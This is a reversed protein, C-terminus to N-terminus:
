LTTSRGPIHCGTLRQCFTIPRDSPVGPGEVPIPKFHVRMAEGREWAERPTVSEEDVIHYFNWLGYDGHVLQEGLFDKYEAFTGQDPLWLLTHMAKEVRDAEETYPHPDEGIMLAIRAAMRNAYVNYASAYACGGGNYYLDDSAWITAYAEYLPLKEPGYERRFLWKEWAIHRQIVPWIKRAYVRDGTWLLHRFLADIFVMNMDYHSNSLDGNSHLGLENRALNAREDAPPIESPIRAMNQHPIWTDFNQRARDHWGLDDLAYPGRWGLLKTRWAISGHMIAQCRQGM